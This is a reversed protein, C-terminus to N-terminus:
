SLLRRMCALNEKFARREGKLDPSISVSKDCLAQMEPTIGLKIM